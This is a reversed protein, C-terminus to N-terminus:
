RRLSLKCLALHDQRGLQADRWQLSDFDGRRELGFAVGALTQDDVQYDIGLIYNRLDGEYRTAVVDEELDTDAFNAWGAMRDFEDGAPAGRQGRAGEPLDVTLILAGLNGGTRSIQRGVFGAFNTISTKSIQQDVVESGPQFETENNNPSALASTGAVGFAVSVPLAITAARLYLNSFM